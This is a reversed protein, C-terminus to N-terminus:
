VAAHAKVNVTDIGLIQSFVLKVPKELDISVRNKVFINLQKLSATEEHSALIKDVVGRVASENNTLEQAGSLVAANAVKDLHTKEMYIRGGDIVFGVMALIAMFSFAALVLINGHEQEFLATLKKM